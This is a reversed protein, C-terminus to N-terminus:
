HHSHEEAHEITWTVHTVVVLGNSVVREYVEKPGHGSVLQGWDSPSKLVVSQNCKPSKPNCSKEGGGDGGSDSVEGYLQTLIDYDHYNPHQNDAQGELNGDPDNTYDMCSGLNTNDFAEDQHGLGFTHAVEQCMVLQRWPINDYYEQNYYTDNLKAVGAIIYRRKGRTTWIQAIGLWGNNGYEGNCVQVDGSVPDCATNTGTLLTLDLVSTLGRNDVSWSHWDDRAVGLATEWETTNLNEVLDLALPPGSVDWKYNSWTHDAYVHMSGMQCAIYSLALLSFKLSKSLIM